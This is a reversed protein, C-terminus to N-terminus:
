ANGGQDTTRLSAQNWVNRSSSPESGVQVPPSIDTGGSTLAQGLPSGGGGSTIYSPLSSGPAASVSTGSGSPTTPAGGFLNSVDQRIYPGAATTVARTIDSPLGAGQLAEGASSTVLGTGAGIEGQKLSQQLNAGSLEAGTFGSTGGAATSGALRGALNPAQEVGPTPTSTAGSVGQAVESGVAGAVAGTATGKAGAELVGEINKGQVAANVAATSGSIAASGLAATTTAVESATMVGTGVAAVADMGTTAEFIAAGVEPGAVVSAAVAVVTIIVPAASGM